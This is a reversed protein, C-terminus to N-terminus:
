GCEVVLVCTCHCPVAVAVGGVEGGLLRVVEAGLVAFGAEAAVVRVGVGVWVLFVAGGGCGARAEAVLARGVISLVVIVAVEAKPAM